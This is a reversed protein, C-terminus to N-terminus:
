DIRTTDGRGFKGHNWGATNLGDISHLHISCGGIYKGTWTNYSYDCEYWNHDTTEEIFVSTRVLNVMRLKGDENLVAVSFRNNEHYYAAEIETPETLLVKNGSCASLILAIFLLTLLRM